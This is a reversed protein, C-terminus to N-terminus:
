VANVGASEPALDAVQVGSVCWESWPYPLHTYNM